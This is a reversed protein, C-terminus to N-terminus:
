KKQEGMREIIRFSDYAKRLKTSQVFCSAQKLLRHNSKYNESKDFSDAYDFVDYMINFTLRGFLTRCETVTFAQERIPKSVRGFVQSTCLIAVANKRQQTIVSLMTEPFNKSNMCSWENQIEDIAFVVGDNGNYLSKDTLQSIDTLEGNQYLYGYNTYIKCKPYKKRITELDNTMSMTKGSGQKGVYFRCGYVPFRNDKHILDNCKYYFLFPIEILLDIIM